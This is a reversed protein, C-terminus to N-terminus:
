CDIADFYKGNVWVPAPEFGPLALMTRIGLRYGSPRLSPWQGKNFIQWSAILMQLEVYTPFTVGLKKKNFNDM